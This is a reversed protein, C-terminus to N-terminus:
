CWISGTTVLNLPIRHVSIMPHENKLEVELDDKNACLGSAIYAREMMEFNTFAGFVDKGIKLLLITEVIPRQVDGDMTVVSFEGHKKSKEEAYSFAEDETEFTKYSIGVSHCSAVEIPAPNPEIQASLAMTELTIVVSCRKKIKM